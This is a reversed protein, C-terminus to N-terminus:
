DLVFTVRNVSIEFNNQLFVASIECNLQSFHTTNEFEKVVFSRGPQCFVLTTATLVVAAVSTLSNM